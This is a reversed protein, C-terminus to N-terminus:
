EGEFKYFVILGINSVFSFDASNQLQEVNFFLRQLSINTVSKIPSAFEVYPNTNNLGLHIPQLNPTYNVATTGNNGGITGYQGVANIEVGWSQVLGNNISSTNSAIHGLLRFGYVDINKFGEPLFEATVGPSPSVPMRIITAACATSGAFYFVNTAGALTTLSGNIDYDLIFSRYCSM